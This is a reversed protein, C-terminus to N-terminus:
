GTAKNFPPPATHTNDGQRTNDGDEEYHERDELQTRRGANDLGRQM